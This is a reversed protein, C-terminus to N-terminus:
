AAEKISELISPLGGTQEDVAKKGYKLVNRNYIHEAWRQQLAPQKSLLAGFAAQRTQTLLHKMLEGRIYDQEPPLNKYEEDNMMTEAEKWFLKGAMTAWAYREYSTLSLGTKPSAPTISKADPGDVAHPVPSFVLENGKNSALRYLEKAIPDSKVMEVSVIPLWHAPYMAPALAPVGNLQVDPYVHQSQWPTRALIQDMMSKADKVEPDMSKRIQNMLTPVVASAATREIWKTIKDARQQEDDTHLADLLTYLGETISKDSFGKEFAISAATAARALEHEALYGASETMDAMMFFLDGFPGLLQKAGIWKGDIKISYPTRGDQEHWLDRMVKNRPGSGTVRDLHVLEAVALAAVVGEAQKGAAMAARAGGASMDEINRAAALGLGPVREFASRSMNSAIRFFPVVFRVLPVSYIMNQLQGMPGVTGPNMGTIERMGKTIPSAELQSIFTNEASDKNAQDAATKVWANDDLLVAMRDELAKGALGESSAQRSALAHLTARYNLTYMYATDATMMRGPKALLSGLKNEANITKAMHDMVRSFPGFQRLQEPSLPPVGHKGTVAQELGGVSPSATQEMGPLDMQPLKAAPLDFKPYAGTRLGRLAMARAEHMASFLGRLHHYMENGYVRDPGSAGSVTGLAAAFMTRIEHDVVMASESAIKKVSASVSTLLSNIFLNEAYREAYVGFMGLKKLFSYQEQKGPLTTLMKALQAPPLSGSKVAQVFSHIDDLPLPQADTSFTRLARGAEARVGLFKVLSRDVLDLHKVFEQEVAGYNPDGEAAGLKEALTVAHDLVNSLIDRAAAAEVSPLSAMPTNAWEEASMHLDKVFQRLAADSVTGGRASEYGAAGMRQVLKTYLDNLANPDNHMEDWGIHLMQDKSVPLTPGLARLQAIVAPDVKPTKIVKVAAGTKESHSALFKVLRPSAIAALGAGILGNRIKEERTKGTAAGAAAGALIRALVIATGTNIKGEEDLGKTLAEGGLTGRALHAAVFNHIESLEPHMESSLKLALRAIGAPVSEDPISEVATKLLDLRDELSLGSGEGTGGTNTEEFTKLNIVAKENLQAGLKAAVDHPVTASIDLYHEGNKEWTGISLSPHDRLIKEHKKAFALYEAKTPAHNLVEAKVFGGVASVDKGAMDGLTPNFTSGGGAHSTLAADVYDAASKAGKSAQRAAGAAKGVTSVAKSPNEPTAQGLAHGLNGLWAAISAPKGPHFGELLGGKGFVAATTDYPDPLSDPPTSSPPAPLQPLKPEPEQKYINTLAIGHQAVQPSEAPAESGYGDLLVQSRDM